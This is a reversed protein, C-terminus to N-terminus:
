AKANLIWGGDSLSEVTIFYKPPEPSPLQTFYANGDQRSISQALVPGGRTEHLRVQVDGLPQGQYMVRVFPAGSIDVQSNTDRCSIASVCGLLVCVYRGLLSNRNESM